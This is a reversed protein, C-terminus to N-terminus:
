WFEVNVTLMWNEVKLMRKSWELNTKLMGNGIKMLSKLFEDNTELMWFEVWWENEVNLSLKWGEIKM